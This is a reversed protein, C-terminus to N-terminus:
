NEDTPEKALTLAKEADDFSIGEMAGESDYKMCGKCQYIMDELEIVLGAHSNVIRALSEADSWTGFTAMVHGRNDNVRYNDMGAQAEWPTDDTHNSM